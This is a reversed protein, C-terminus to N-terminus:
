VIKLVRLWKQEDDDSENISLYVKLEDNWELELDDLAKGKKDVEGDNWKIVQNKVRRVTTYGINNIEHDCIFESESENESGSLKEETKPHGFELEARCVYDLRDLGKYIDDDDDDDDYILETYNGWIALVKCKKKNIVAFNKKKLCLGELRKIKSM